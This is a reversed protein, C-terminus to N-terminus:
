ASDKVRKHEAVMYMYVIRFSASFGYTTHAIVIRHEECFNYKPIKGNQDDDFFPCKKLAVTITNLIKDTYFLESM